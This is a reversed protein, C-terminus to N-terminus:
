VEKVINDYTTIYKCLELGLETLRYNPQLYVGSGDTYIRNNLIRKQILEEEYMQILESQKLESIEIIDTIWKRAPYNGDDSWDKKLNKKYSAVLLLIAGSSLTRAVKMYHYPLISGRDSIDESSAVLFIKKLIDFREKDPIEKDLFDLIESLCSHHQESFQYDDKIRGKDRFKNWEKLLTSLFQGSRMRQFIYGISLILDEKKSSAIGTLGEVIQNLTSQLVESTEKELSEVKIIKKM